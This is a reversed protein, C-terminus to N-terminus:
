TRYEHPTVISRKSRKRLFLSISKSDSSFVLPSTQDVTSGLLPVKQFYGNGGLGSELQLQTFASRLYDITLKEGESGPFRGKFEDSALKEIRRKLSYEEIQRLGFDPPSPSILAPKCAVILLTMVLIFFLNKTFQNSCM